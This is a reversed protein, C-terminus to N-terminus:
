LILIDFYKSVTHSKTQVAFCIMDVYCENITMWQECM